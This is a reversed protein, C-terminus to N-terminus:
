LLPESITLLHKNISVFNSIIAEKTHVTTHVTTNQSTYVSKKNFYLPIKNNTAMHVTIKM